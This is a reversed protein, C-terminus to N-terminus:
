LLPFRSVQSIHIAISHGTQSVHYAQCVLPSAKTTSWKPWGKGDNVTNILRGMLREYLEVPLFRPLNYCVTTHNAMSQSCGSTSERKRLSGHWGRPCRKGPWDKTCGLSERLLGHEWQLAGTSEVPDRVGAEQAPLKQGPLKSFSQYSCSNMSSSPGPLAGLCMEEEKRTNWQPVPSSQAMQNEEPEPCRPM